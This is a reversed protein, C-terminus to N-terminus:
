DGFAPPWGGSFDYAAPDASAEMAAKHTEAVAFIAIDSAAAAGFVQQALAQTM